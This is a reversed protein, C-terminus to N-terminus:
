TTPTPDQDLQTATVKITYVADTANKGDATDAANGKTEEAETTGTVFPWEWEISIDEKKFTSAKDAPLDVSYIEIFTDKNDFKLDNVSVDDGQVNMKFNTPIKNIDDVSIEVVVKTAVETDALDIAIPISGTTGPAIKEAAVGTDDKTITDALNFKESVSNNVKLTVNWKAVTATGTAEVTSTYKALTGGMLSTTVVTLALALAGLRATYSKKRM